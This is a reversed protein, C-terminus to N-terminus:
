GGGSISQNVRADSLFSLFKKEREATIRLATDALDSYGIL